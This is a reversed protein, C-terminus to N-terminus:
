AFILRQHINIHKRRNRPSVVAKTNKHREKDLYLYMNCIYITRMQKYRLLFM